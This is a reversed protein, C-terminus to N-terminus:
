HSPRAFRRMSRRASCLSPDDAEDRSANDIVGNRTHVQAGGLEEKTKNEGIARRVVAPGAILVQATDRSM